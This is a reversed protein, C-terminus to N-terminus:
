FFKNKDVDGSLNEPVKSINYLAHQGVKSSLIGLSYKDHCIPRAASRKGYHELKLPLRCLLLFYSFKGLHPKTKQLVNKSM